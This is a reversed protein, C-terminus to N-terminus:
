KRKRRDDRQIADCWGQLDDFVREKDLDHMLEHRNGPYLICSVNEMGIKKLMAEFRRVGKGNEGVPDEEGSLILLPLKKPMRAARKPDVVEEITRFLAEFANLSFHFNMKRDQLAQVLVQPDRSMWSGTHANDPYRKAFGSCTLNDLLSSHGRSGGKLMGTYAALLGAKVLMPPQHGTGMLVAGDVRSGHYILYRRVLFSGMSHGLMIYPAKPVYSVAMKRIQEIDKLWLVAGEKGVYGLESPDNVSDGHGLHDHGIVFYGVSAMREAMEDYREIYELMGHVIQLVGRCAIEPDYWRYGHIMHIGDASDVYFEERTVM